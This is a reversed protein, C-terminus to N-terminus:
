ASELNKIAKSNDVVIYDKVAYVSDFPILVFKGDERYKQRSLESDPKVVLDVLAGTQIDFVMNEVNGLITGEVTVIEKGALNGAYVKAM